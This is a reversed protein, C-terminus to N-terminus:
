YEERQEEEQIHDNQDIWEALSASISLFEQSDHASVLDELSPFQTALKEVAKDSEELVGNVEVEIQERLTRDTTEMYNKFKKAVVNLADDQHAASVTLSRGKNDAHRLTTQLRAIELKM